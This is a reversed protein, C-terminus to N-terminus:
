GKCESVSKVVRFILHEITDPDERVQVSGGGHLAIHSGKKMPHIVVIANINVRLVQSSDAVATLQIFKM